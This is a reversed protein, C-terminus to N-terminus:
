RRGCAIQLRLVDSPGAEALVCVIQTKKQSREMAEIGSGAAYAIRIHGTPGVTALLLTSLALLPYYGGLLSNLM